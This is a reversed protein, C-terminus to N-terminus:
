FVFFNVISLNKDDCYKKLKEFNDYKKIIDTGYYNVVVKKTSDFLICDAYRRENKVLYFIKM